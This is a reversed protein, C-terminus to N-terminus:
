GLAGSNLVVIVGLFMVVAGSLIWKEGSGDGRRKLAFGRGVLGLAVAVIIAGPVWMVDDSWHDM